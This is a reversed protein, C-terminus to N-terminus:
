HHERGVAASMEDALKELAERRTMTVRAIARALAAVPPCAQNALWHSAPVRGRIWPRTSELREMLAREGFARYLFATYPSAGLDFSSPSARGEELLRLLVPDLDEAAGPARQLFLEARLPNTNHEDPLGGLFLEIPADGGTACAFAEVLAITYLKARLYRVALTMNRRAQAIRRAHVEPSPEGRFSHFVREAELSALFGEMRQLALRYEGNRYANPMHLAPNTEPLLRWTNDLFRAPDAEAFNEVDRNALRVATRVADECANADLAPIGLDRLRGVLRDFAAAERFPITAEIGAAIEAIHRPSLLPSLCKAAVFASALENLGSYPTLEDGPERGFVRAVLETTPDELVGLGLRYGTGDVPTLLPRLLDNVMRPFGQDVQVYVVDHFIGALTEIPGTGETITLVHEHSHFERSQGSLAEHVLFTPRELEMANPRVGLKTLADDFRVLLRHITPLGADEPPLPLM